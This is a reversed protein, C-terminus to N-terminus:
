RIGGNKSICCKFLKCSAKAQMPQSKSDIRIWSSVRVSQELFNELKQNEWKGNGVHFQFMWKTKTPTLGM